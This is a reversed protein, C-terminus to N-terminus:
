EKSGRETEPPDLRHAVDSPKGPAEMVLRARVVKGSPTRPLPADWMVIQEPLKRRATGARELYAVVDDLTLSTGPAPRVAVAVREGTEPDSLTFAAYEELGPMGALGADIEGLSIKLGNRNAVEKLRGVVTLRRDDSLEVLDGTRFWGDDFAAADDEADVYGLFLAPGRLLGEQPSIASGVRVETGPMLLGDDSLRRERDDEPVSGTACPMESSGYVRAIEIGFRDSAQELLLRPLMAGGLALTRIAIQASRAEAARLLREAIVPAGGLLNAGTANVRDLSADPDFRDELVLGAHRDAFLHMQTVGAISTVPSVLFLVTHHDAGTIRAMNNAGATITNLSHVVGKPRNTTGSTFLVVQAAGRDPEFWRTAPGQGGTNTVAELRAVGHGMAGPGLRAEESAPVVVLAPEGLVEGALRIDSVGSRRDLVAVAAGVRLLAHYAVVADVTNGAVLVVGDGTRVGLDALAGVAGHVQAVLEAYTVEHHNDTVALADPKVRASAELGDALSRDDWWNEARYVAALTHTARSAIEERFAHATSPRVV